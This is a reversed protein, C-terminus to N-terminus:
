RMPQLAKRAELFVNDKWLWLILPRAGSDSLARRKADTTVAPPRM